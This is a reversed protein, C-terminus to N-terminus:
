VWDIDTCDGGWGQLAAARDLIFPGAFNIKRRMGQGRNLQYVKLQAESQCGGWASQLTDHYLWWRLALVWFKIRIRRDPQCFSLRSTTNRVYKRTLHFGDLGADHYWDRCSGCGQKWSKWRWATMHEIITHGENETYSWFSLLKRKMMWMLIKNSMWLGGTILWCNLCPNRNPSYEEKWASEVWWIDPENWVAETISKMAMWIWRCARIYERYLDDSWAAQCGSGQIGPLGWGKMINGASESPGNEWGWVKGFPIYREERITLYRSIKGKLEGQGSAFFIMHSIRAPM